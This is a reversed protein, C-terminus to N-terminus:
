PLKYYVVANRNFKKLKGEAAREDAAGILAEASLPENEGVWKKHAYERLFTDSVGVRAYHSQIFLSNLVEQAKEQQTM